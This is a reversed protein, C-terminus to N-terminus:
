KGDNELEFVYRLNFEPCIRPTYLETRMRGGPIDCMIWMRMGDKGLDPHPALIRVRRNIAGDESKGVWIQNIEIPPENAKYDNQTQVLRNTM